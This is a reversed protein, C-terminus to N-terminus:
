KQQHENRTSHSIIYRNTLDDTKNNTRSNINISIQYKLSFVNKM